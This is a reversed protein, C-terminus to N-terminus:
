VVEDPILCICFGSIQIRISDEIGQGLRTLNFGGVQEWVTRSVGMNFSRPPFKGVHKRNGRIGGTTFPSTMAYSIAKQILTFSDHAADPGGYADLPTEKLFAAVQALYEPPILCDSDFIM